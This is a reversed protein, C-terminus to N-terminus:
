ATSWGPASSCSRGVRAARALGALRQTGLDNVAHAEESTAGPCFLAACHVVAEVGRVAADLSSHDLLEGRVIEVDHGLLDATSGPDRALARVQDGRLALRRALRSGVKGTAGTVLVRM